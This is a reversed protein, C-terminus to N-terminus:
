VEFCYNHLVEPSHSSARSCESDMYEPNVLHEPDSESWRPDLYELIIRLRLAGSWTWTSWFWVTDEPVQTVRGLLESNARFTFILFSGFHLLDLFGKFPAANTDAHRSRAEGSCLGSETRNLAHPSHPGHGLRDYYYVIFSITNLSSLKEQDLWHSVLPTNTEGCFAAFRLDYFKKEM